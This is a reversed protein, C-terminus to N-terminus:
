SIKGSSHSQYFITINLSGFYAIHSLQKTFLFLTKAYKSAM